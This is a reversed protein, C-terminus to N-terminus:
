IKPRILAVQHMLEVHAVLPLSWQSHVPGASYQILFSHQAIALALYNGSLGVHLSLHNPHAFQAFGQVPLPGEEQRSECRDERRAVCDQM